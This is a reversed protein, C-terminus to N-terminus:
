YLLSINKKSIYFQCVMNHENLCYFLKPFVLVVTLDWGVLTVAVHATLLNVFRATQPAFVLATKDM